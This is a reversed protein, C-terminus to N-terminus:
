ADVPIPSVPQCIPILDPSCIPNTPDCSPLPSLDPDCGIILDPSCTPNTPDCSPIPSLDPDCGIIPKTSLSKTMKEINM